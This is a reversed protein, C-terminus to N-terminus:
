RRDSHLNIDRMRSTLSDTIETTGGDTLLVVHTTVPTQYRSDRLGVPM